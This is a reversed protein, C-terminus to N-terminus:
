GNTSATMLEHLRELQEDTVNEFEVGFGLGREAYRARGNLM